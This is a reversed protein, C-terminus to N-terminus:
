HANIKYFGSLNMLLFHHSRNASQSVLEDVIQLHCNKCGYQFSNLCYLIIFMYIM